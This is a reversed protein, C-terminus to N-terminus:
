ATSSPWPSTTPIGAPMDAVGPTSTLPTTAPWGAALM